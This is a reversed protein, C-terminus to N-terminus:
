KLKYKGKTLTSNNTRKSMEEDQKANSGNEQILMPDIGIVRPYCYGLQALNYQNVIQHPNIFQQQLNITQAYNPVYLNHELVHPYLNLDLPIPIPQLQCSNPLYVVNPFNKM